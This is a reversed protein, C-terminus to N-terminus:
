GFLLPNMSHYIVWCLWMGTLYWKYLKNVFEERNRIIVAKERGLPELEVTELRGFYAHSATFTWDLQHLAEESDCALIEM